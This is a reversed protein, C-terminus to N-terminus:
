KGDIEPKKWCRTLLKTMKGVLERKDQFSKEIAEINQKSSSLKSLM